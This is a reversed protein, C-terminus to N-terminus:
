SPSGGGNGSDPDDDGAPRATWLFESPQGRYRRAKLARAMGEADGFLPEIQTEYLSLAKLQRTTNAPV